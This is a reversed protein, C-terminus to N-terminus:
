KLRQFKRKRIRYRIEEYVQKIRWLKNCYIFAFVIGGLHALHAINGGGGFVSFYISLAMLLYIFHRVPLPIVFFLLVKSSPFYISYATLIGLVSASAGVVWFGKVFFLSFLGGTIASFIYIVLFRKVGLYIQLSGGFFYLSLMNFFLHSLSGHLISYTFLTYIRYPFIDKTYLALLPTLDKFTLQLFFFVVNIIIIGLVTNTLVGGFSIRREYYM